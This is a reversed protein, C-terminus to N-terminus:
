LLTGFRQKINEQCVTARKMIFRHIATFEEPSLLLKWWYVLEQLVSINAPTAHESFHVMANVSKADNVAYSNGWLISALKNLIDNEPMVGEARWARGGVIDEHDILAYRHKGTRILNGYNRDCNGIWDDFVVTDLVRPWAKIDDIFVQNRVSPRLRYHFKPSKGPLTSICWLPYAEMDNPFAEEPYISKLQDIGVFVIFARPAIPLDLASALLYATIENVLSKSQTAGLYLSAYVQHAHGNAVILAHHTKGIGDPAHNLFAQYGSNLLTIKKPKTLYNEM